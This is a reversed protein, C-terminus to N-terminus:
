FSPVGGVEAWQGNALDRARGAHRPHRDSCSGSAGGGGRGLRCGRPESPRLGVDPSRGASATRLFRCCMWRFVLTRDKFPFCGFVPSGRNGHVRPM